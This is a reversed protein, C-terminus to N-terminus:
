GRHEFLTATGLGAAGSVAAVGYRAGRRGLEEVAGLALAAGTAGFAHGFAMTGGNPNFREDDVDLDRQFKLCLAAFAEAFEYVAVDSTRLGARALLDRVAEQGATLMTVPDVAAARAAVVKALPALGLRTAAELSGVVLLAAGDAMPPSTAKTHHHDVTSLDPHKALAVADQGARGVEAFAPPLAALEERSPSFALLEDHDLAVAGADDRVAIRSSAGHGHEAARQAKARTRLAYDDLADRGFRERTAVLDAAVGMHISGVAAAVRPDAYLPGRDAFIPVQSVSEVGGCVVLSADGARVRAAAVNVADLGSACFRNVTLGPASEWGALVAATRALNSGQADVQSACGIVVDDVAMAPFALREELAKMLQTLLALPPVNRLAGRESAKGRPTRLGGLVYADTM